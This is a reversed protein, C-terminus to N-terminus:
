MKHFSNLGTDKWDLVAAFILKDVTMPKSIKSEWHGLSPLKLLDKWTQNKFREMYNVSVVQCLFPFHQEEVAARIEDEIFRWLIQM